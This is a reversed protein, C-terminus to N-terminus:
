LVYFRREPKIRMNMRKVKSDRWRDLVMLGLEAILLPVIILVLLFLISAPIAIAFQM